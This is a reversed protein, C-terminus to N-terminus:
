WQPVHFGASAQDAASAVYQSLDSSALRSRANGDDGEEEARTYCIVAKAYYMPKDLTEYCNGMAYWMRHDNPRLDTAKQYYYLSYFPLKLDEYTQGLGHWARYDCPNIEVAERYAKVAAPTNKLERYEHGM